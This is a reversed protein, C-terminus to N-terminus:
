KNFHQHHTNKIEVSTVYVPCGMDVIIYPELDSDQPLFYNEMTECEDSYINEPLYQRAWATSSIVGGM